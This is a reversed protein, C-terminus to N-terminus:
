RRCNNSSNRTLCAKKNKILDNKLKEFIMNNFYRTSEKLINIAFFLILIM